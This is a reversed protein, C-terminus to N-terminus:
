FAKFCIIFSRTCMSVCFLHYNVTSCLNENEVKEPKVIKMECKKKTEKKKEELTNKITSEENKISVM